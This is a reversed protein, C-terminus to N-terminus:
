CSYFITASGEPLVLDTSSVKLGIEYSETTGNLKNQKAADNLIYDMTGAQLGTTYSNLIIFSNKKSLLKMTLNVFDFISDEIKWVEGNPGRGYSPPDMIIGDYLNGRRIEREVFKKCDDVIWRIRDNPISSSEANEKAWSVMGKSADVHTVKAGALAAAMTAGGTYAFLNLVKLENKNGTNKNCFDYIFNWNVAQEPFVGTHKFTFPKLNFVMKANDSKKGVDYSIKWSKPLDIFEWSGGGKSSRHYIANVKYKKFNQPHWIAQPDPRRLIYDGFREIKEGNGCDLVEYDKFNEVFKIMIIYSPEALM